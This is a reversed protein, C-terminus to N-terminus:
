SMKTTNTGLVSGNIQEIRQTSTKKLLLVIDTCQGIPRTLERTLQFNVKGFSPGIM